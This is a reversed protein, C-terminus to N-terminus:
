KKIRQERKRLEMSYVSALDQYYNENEPNWGKSADRAAICDSITYELMDKTMSKARKEENNWNVTRM